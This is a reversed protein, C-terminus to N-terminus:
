FVYERDSLAILFRYLKFFKYLQYFENSIESANLKSVALLFCM